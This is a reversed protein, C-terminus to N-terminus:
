RELLRSLRDRSGPSWHENRSCCAEMVPLDDSLRVWSQRTPAHIHIDPPCSDPTDLTGVGVFRLMEGTVGCASRVATRCRCVVQGKGGPTPIRTSDLQGSLLEASSSEIMANIAFASGSLRRCHSCHCCHVFLPARVMRYRVEGCVCGGAHCGPVEESM